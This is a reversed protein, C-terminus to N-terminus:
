FDLILTSLLNPKKQLGGEENACPQRRVTDERPREQTHVDRIDGETDLNRKRTLVDMMNSQSGGQHGCKLKIVEQFVKEGLISVNQPVPPQSRLM